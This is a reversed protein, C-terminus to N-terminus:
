SRQSGGVVVLVLDEVLVAAREETKPLSSNPFNAAERKWDARKSPVM